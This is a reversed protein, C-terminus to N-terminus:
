LIAPSAPVLLRLCFFGARIALMAVVTLLEVLTFAQRTVRSTVM